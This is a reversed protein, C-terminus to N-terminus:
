IRISLGLLLLKAQIIDIDRPTLRFYGELEDDFYSLLSSVFHIGGRKLRNYTGVPLNLDEISMAQPDSPTAENM